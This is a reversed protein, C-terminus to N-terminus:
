IGMRVKMQKIFEEESIGHKTIKIRNRSYSLRIDKMYAISITNVKESIVRATKLTSIHAIRM